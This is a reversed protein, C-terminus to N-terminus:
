CEIDLCIIYDARHYHKPGFNLFFHLHSDRGSCLSYEPIGHKKEAGRPFNRPLVEFRPVVSEKRRSESAHNPIMWGNATTYDSNSYQCRRRDFACLLCVVIERGDVICELKM